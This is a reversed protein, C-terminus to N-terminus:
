NGALATSRPHQLEDESCHRGALTCGTIFGKIGHNRQGLSGRKNDLTTLAGSLIGDAGVEEDVVVFGHRALEDSLLLSFREGDNGGVKGIFIKEVAGITAALTLISGILGIAVARIVYRLKNVEETDPEIPNYMRLTKLSIQFRVPM